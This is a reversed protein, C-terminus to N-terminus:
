AYSALNSNLDSVFTDRGTPAEPITDHIIVLEPTETPSVTDTPIIEMDTPVPETQIPEEQNTIEAVHTLTAEVAADVLGQFDREDAPSPSGCSTLLLIVMLVLILFFRPSKSM